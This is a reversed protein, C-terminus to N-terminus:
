WNVGQTETPIVSGDVATSKGFPEYEKATTIDALQNQLISQGVETTIWRSGDWELAECRELSEVFHQVFFRRPDAIAPNADVKESFTAMDTGNSAIELVQKYIPLLDKEREFLKEARETPNNESLMTQGAETIHWFVKPAPVPQYYEEGDIVVIKPEPTFSAYPQGDETVRDLAGAEELMTCFNSASYVNFKKGRQAEAVEEMQANSVPGQAAELMKLMALRHPRMNEFLERTREEAPRAAYEPTDQKVGEIQPMKNPDLPEYQNRPTADPFLIDEDPWPASESGPEAPAMDGFLGFGEFEKLAPDVDFEPDVGFEFEEKESMLKGKMWCM